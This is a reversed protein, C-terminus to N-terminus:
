GFLGQYARDLAIITHIVPVPQHNRQIHTRIQVLCGINGSIVLEAGSQILNRAKRDGLMAAIEPQDLNYSGASGCCINAEAVPLLELGDIQMLLRRPASAIGQAHILHCADQYAARLPKKLAPPPKIGLQDLFESIDQVLASFQGSQDELDTGAFLLPYEKMGSGCGASNAIVADVDKPFVQINRKASRRSQQWDGTHLGLAGCCGQQRPVVVEVGNQALVRLTAHNIEPDLV